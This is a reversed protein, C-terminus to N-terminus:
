TCSETPKEYYGTYDYSTFANNSVGNAHLVQDFKKGPNKKTGKFMMHELMHAIGTKGPKEDRSGVKFWTHYSILPVNHDEHLLVTLGNKLQYKEVPFDLNVQSGEKSTQIAGKINKNPDEKVSIKPEGWLTSLSFLVILFLAYLREM